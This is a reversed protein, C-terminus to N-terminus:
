VSADALAHPAAQDPLHRCSSEMGQVGQTSVEFITAEPAVWRISRLAAEHDFGLAGASDMRSVVVVRAGRFAVPYKLPNDEGETSSLVVVRLDEGLDTMSAELMKFRNDASPRTERAAKDPQTGSAVGIFRWLAIM